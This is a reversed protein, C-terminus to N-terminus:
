RRSSLSNRQKLSNLIDVHSSFSGRIICVKTGFDKRESMRTKFIKVQVEDNAVTESALYLAPEDLDIATATIHADADLLSVKDLASLVLNRM